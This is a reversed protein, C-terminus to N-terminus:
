ELLLSKLGPFLAVELQFQDILGFFRNRLFDLKVLSLHIVSRIFTLGLFIFKQEQLHRKLQKKSAVDEHDNFHESFQFAFTRVFMVVDPGFVSAFTRGLRAVHMIYVFAIGQNVNRTSDPVPVNATALHETVLDLKAFSITGLVYVRSVHLDVLLEVKLFVTIQLAVM